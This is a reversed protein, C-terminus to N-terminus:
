YGRALKKRHRDDQEGDKQRVSDAVPRKLLAPRDGAAAALEALDWRGAVLSAGGTIVCPRRRLAYEKYFRSFPM